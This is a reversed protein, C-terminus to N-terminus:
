AITFTGGFQKVTWTTGWSADYEIAILKIWTGGNSADTYSVSLTKFTGDISPDLLVNFPATNTSIDFILQIEQGLSSAKFATSVDNTIKYYPSNVNIYEFLSNELSGIISADRTTAASADYTNYYDSDITTTNEYWNTWQNKVTLNDVIVNVFEGTAGKVRGTTNVPVIIVGETESYIVDLYDQIVQNNYAYIRPFEPILTNITINTLDM